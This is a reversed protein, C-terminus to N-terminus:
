PSDRLETMISIAGRDPARPTSNAELWASLGERFEDTVTM